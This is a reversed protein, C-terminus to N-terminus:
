GYMAGKLHRGGDVFIVEGTIFRSELLFLVAAAVDDETGHRKLPLEIARSETDASETGSASCILGPAVANVRIKPAFEVAMMRTITFLMRKSLYYAAHDTDYTLMRSDLLNVINGESNQKAFIRSLLLPAAANLQVNQWLHQMSFDTLRSEVFSSANNILIDIRKVLQTAKAFFPEVQDLDQLDAQLSWSPTGQQQLKNILKTTREGSSHFHAIIHAGQAALALAIAHGIHSGAGTILATKGELDHKM